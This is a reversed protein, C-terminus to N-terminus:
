RSNETRCIWFKNKSRAVSCSMLAQQKCWREDATGVYENVALRPAFRRLENRWNYVVSAPSVVLILEFPIGVSGEEPCGFFLYM